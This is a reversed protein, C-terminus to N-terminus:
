LFNRSSKAMPKTSIAVSVSFFYKGSDSLVVIATPSSVLPKTNRNHYEFIDSSSSSLLVNLM